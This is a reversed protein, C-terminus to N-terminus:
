NNDLTGSNQILQEISLPQKESSPESNEPAVGAVPPHNFNFDPYIPQDIRVHGKLTQRTEGEVLLQVQRIYPFNESLSNAISYISLLESLSGGPHFDVLKKSFNIRVLDNEIEVGLVETERPLVALNASKPGEILQALLKSVCDRDEECGAIEASEPVLFTGEPATFYLQVARTPLEESVAVPADEVVAQPRQSYWSIGYGVLIGIILVGLLGVLTKKM